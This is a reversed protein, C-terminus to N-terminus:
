SHTEQTLTADMADEDPQYPSTNTVESCSTSIALLFVPSAANREADPILLELLSSILQGGRVRNFFQLGDLHSSGLQRQDQVPDIERGRALSHTKLQRLFKKILLFRRAASM